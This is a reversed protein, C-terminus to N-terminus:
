GGVGTSGLGKEGRNTDSLEAVAIGTPIIRVECPYVTISKKVGYDSERRMTWCM